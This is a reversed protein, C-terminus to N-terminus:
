SQDSWKIVPKEHQLIQSTDGGKQKHDSNLIDLVSRSLHIALTYSIRIFALLSDFRFIHHVYNRTSHRWYWNEYYRGEKRITFTSLVNILVIEQCANLM